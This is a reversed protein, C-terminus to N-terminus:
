LRGGFGARIPGLGSPRGTARALELELMAIGQNVEELTVVERKIGGSAYSVETRAGSVLRKTRATRLAALDAEIEAIPRHHM